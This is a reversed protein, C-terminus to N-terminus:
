CAENCQQSHQWQRYSVASRDREIHRTKVKEISISVNRAENMKERQMKTVGEENTDYAKSVEALIRKRDNISLYTM